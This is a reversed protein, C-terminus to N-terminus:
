ITMSPLFECDQVIIAELATFRSCQIADIAQDSERPDPNASSEM